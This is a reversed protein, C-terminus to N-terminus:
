SSFSVSTWKQKVNRSSAISSMKSRAIMILASLSMTGLTRATRRRNGPFCTKKAVGGLRCEDARSNNFAQWEPVAIVAPRM